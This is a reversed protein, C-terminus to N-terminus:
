STSRSNEGVVNTNNHIAGGLGTPLLPCFHSRSPVLPSQSVNINVIKLPSLFEKKHLQETFCPLLNFFSKHFIAVHSSLRILRMTASNPLNIPTLLCRHFYFQMDVKSSPLCRETQNVAFCAHVIISEASLFLV